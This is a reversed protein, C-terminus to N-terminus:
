ISADSIHLEKKDHAEGAATAEEAQKQLSENNGKCYCMFKDFLEKEAEGEADVEKQMEQMRTVVKRIPNIAHVATTGALLVSSLRM